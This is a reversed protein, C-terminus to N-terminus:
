TQAYREHWRTSIARSASGAQPSWCRRRGPGWCMSPTSGGSGQLGAPRLHSFTLLMCNLVGPLRAAVQGECAKSACACVCPSAHLCAHKSSTHLQKLRLPDTHALAGAKPERGQPDPMSVLPGMPTFECGAQVLVSGDPGHQRLIISHSVSQLLTRGECPFCAPRLPAPGLGQPEPSRRHDLSPCSRM